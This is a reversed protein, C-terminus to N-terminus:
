SKGGSNGPKRRCLSEVRAVLAKLDTVMSDLNSPADKEVNIVLARCRIVGDAGERWLSAPPPTAVPGKQKGEPEEPADIQTRLESVRRRLSDRNPLRGGAKDRLVAVQLRAPLVKVEQLDALTVGANSEAVAAVEPNTKLNHMVSFLNKVHNEGKGIREAIERVTLGQSRLFDLAKQLEQATLNERQLNEVVQVATVEQEAYAGVPLVVARITHWKGPEESDLLKFAQFRRHGFLLRYTQGSTALFAGGAQDQTEGAAPLSQVVVPQLLGQARISAALDRVDGEASRINSVVYIATLPIERLVQPTGGAVVDLFDAAAQNGMAGAPLVSKKM